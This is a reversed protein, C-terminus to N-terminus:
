RTSRAMYPPSSQSKAVFRAVLASAAPPRVAGIVMAGQLLLLIQISGDISHTEMLRLRRPAARTRVKSMVLCLVSLCRIMM